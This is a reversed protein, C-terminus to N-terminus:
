LPPRPIMHVIIEVFWLGLFAAAMQFQNSILGFLTVGWSYPAVYPSIFTSSLISLHLDRKQLARVTMALGLPVLFPFLSINWSFEIPNNKHLFWVGYFVISVLTVAVVPGFVRTIERLGGRQWAQILWLLAVVSGVQPKVLIFFLGIQPPLSFGLAVLWDIQGLFAGMIVPPSLLICAFELPKAGMRYAAFGFGFFCLVFMIASGLSEPLLAVPLFPIFAWPPNYIMPGYPSEGSFLRLTAPRFSHTWDVGVTWEVGPQYGVEVPLFHYVLWVGTVFLAFFFLMKYVASRRPGNVRNHEAMGSGM